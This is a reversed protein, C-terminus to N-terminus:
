RSPKDLASRLLTPGEVQRSVLFPGGFYSCDEELLLSGPLPYKFEGLYHQVAFEYRARPLGECCSYARLILPKTYPEPLEGDNKLQFSYTYTEWGGCVEVPQQAYELGSRSLRSSLYDLLEPAVEAPRDLSAHVTNTKYGDDPMGNLGAHAATRGVDPARESKTQRGAM